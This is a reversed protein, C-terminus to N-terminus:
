IKRFRLHKPKRLARNGPCWILQNLSHTVSYTIKRWPSAWCHLGHFFCFKGCPLRPSSSSAQIDFVCMACLFCVRRLFIIVVYYLTTIVSV